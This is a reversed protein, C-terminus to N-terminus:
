ESYFVTWHLRLAEHKQTTSTVPICQSDRIWWITISRHMASKQAYAPTVAKVSCADNEIRRKMIM